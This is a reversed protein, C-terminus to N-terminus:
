LSRGVTGTLSYVKRDLATILGDIGGNRLIAAFESRRTAVESIASDLYIDAILWGDGNRRMIYDVEVPDGDAKVIQSKVLMGFPATQEGTVELKQGNYSDFRDAYVASVYRRYSETIRQRQVANLAAWYSGVSLRTMLPVDFLQGVVPALRAYRGGEGLMRSDKMTAILTVYLSRVSDQASAPFAAAKASIGVALLLALCLCGLSGTRNTSILRDNM